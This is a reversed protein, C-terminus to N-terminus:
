LVERGGDRSVDKEGGMRDHHVDAETKPMKADVSFGNFRESCMAVQARKCQVFREMM